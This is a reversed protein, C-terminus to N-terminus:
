EKQSNQQNFLHEVVESPTEEKPPEIPKDLKVTDILKIDKYKAIKPKKNAWRELDTCTDEVISLKLRAGKVGSISGSIIAGLLAMLAAVLKLIAGAINGDIMDPIMSGGISILGLSTILRTISKRHYYRKDASLNRKNLNADQFSLLSMLEMSSKYGSEPYKHAKIRYMLIPYKYLKYGLKKRYFPSNKKSSAIYPLDKLGYNTVVKPEGTVEDIVPKGYDDLEVETKTEIPRGTKYEVWQLWKATYERNFEDIKAQLEKDDWDKVAYYYRAHVSYKGVENQAIDETMIKEYRQRYFANWNIWSISIALLSYITMTTWDFSIDFHEVFSIYVLVIASVVAIIYAVFNMLQSLIYNMNFLKKLNPKEKNNIKNGEDNRM